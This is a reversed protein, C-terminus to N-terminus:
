YLQVDSYYILNILCDVAKSYKTMDYSTVGGLLGGGGRKMLLYLGQHGMQWVGFGCFVSCVLRSSEAM